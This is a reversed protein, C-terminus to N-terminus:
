VGSAVADQQLTQEAKTILTQITAGFTLGNLGTELGSLTSSEGTADSLLSNPDTNTVNPIAAMNDERKQIFDTVNRRAGASLRDTQAGGMM